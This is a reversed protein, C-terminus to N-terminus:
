GVACPAHVGGVVRGPDGEDLLRIVRARQHQVKLARHVVIEDGALVRQELNRGNVTRPVGEGYPGIGLRTAQGEEDLDHTHARPGPGECVAEQQVRNGALLCADVEAARESVRYCTRGIYRRVRDDCDARPRADNRKKAHDSRPRPLHLEERRSRQPLILLLHHLVDACVLSPPDLRHDLLIRLELGRHRHLFRNLAHATVTVVNIGATHEV